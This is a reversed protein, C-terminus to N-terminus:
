IFEETVFIEIGNNKCTEDVCRKTKASLKSYIERIEKLDKESRQIFTIMNQVAIIDKAQKAESRRDNIMIKHITYVAPSPVWVSYGHIDITVSYDILCEMFRLGEAKIGFSEVKYPETQGSGLERTLFEIELNDKFFKTIGGIDTEHKFHKEEFAKIIDVKWSPKNKNKVLIDMDTTRVYAVFPVEFYNSEEYIYEAWSGIIVIYNLIGLQSFIEIAEWFTKQQKNM